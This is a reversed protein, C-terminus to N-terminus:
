GARLNTRFAKSSIHNYLWDSMITPRGVARILRDVGALVIFISCIAVGPVVYYVFTLSNWLLGFSLCMSLRPYGRNMAESRLITAILSACIWVSFFALVPSAIALGGGSVHGFLFISTAGPTAFFDSESELAMRVWFWTSVPGSTSLLIHATIGIEAVGSEEGSAIAPSVACVTVLSGGFLIYLLLVVEATYTCQNSFIAISLATTIAVSLAISSLALGLSISPQFFTSAAMAIWDLYIGIRIGLGYFDTNGQFGRDLDRDNCM